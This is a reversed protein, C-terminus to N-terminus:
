PAPARAPPSKNINYAPVVEVAVGRVTLRDGPRVVRVPGHLKEACGAATVIATDDKRVRRVDDPSCHDAHDHTIFILDAPAQDGQLKWPDIYVVKGDGRIRFSDHGLLEIEVGDFVAM